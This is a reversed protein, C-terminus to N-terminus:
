PEDAWGIWFPHLHEGRQAYWFTREGAAIRAADTDDLVMRVCFRIGLEDQDIIAEVPAIVTNTPDNDPPAIVLRQGGDWVEDEPIPTPRM